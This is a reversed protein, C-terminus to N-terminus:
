IVSILLNFAANRSLIASKFFTNVRDTFITRKTDFVMDDYLRTLCIALHQRTEASVPYDCQEPIQSSVDLLALLGSRFANDSM